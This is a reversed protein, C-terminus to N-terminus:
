GQWKGNYSDVNDDLKYFVLRAGAENDQINRARGSMNFFELVFPQDDSSTYGPDVWGGPMYIGQRMHSSRGTLLAALHTPMNLVEATKAVHFRGSQIEFGNEVHVDVSMPGINEPQPSLVASAIDALESGTIIM